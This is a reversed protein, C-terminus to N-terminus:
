TSGNVNPLKEWMSGKLYQEAQPLREPLLFEYQCISAPGNMIGHGALRTLQMDLHCPIESPKRRITILPLGRDSTGLEYVCPLGTKDNRAM